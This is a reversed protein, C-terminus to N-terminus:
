ITNKNKWNNHLFEEWTFAEESKQWKEKNRAIRQWQPDAIKKIVKGMTCFTPSQLTKRWTRDLYYNQTNMLRKQAECCTWGVEIKTNIRPKTCRNNKKRSRIDTHRIKQIKKINLMSRNMGRQCTLAKSKIKNTFRWTQCAYTLYSILYSDVVKKKFHIPM